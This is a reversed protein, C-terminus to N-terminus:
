LTQGVQVGVVRPTYLCGQQDITVPASPPPSSPFTGQVEVFANALGGDAARVVTEQVPRASRARAAAACAPDAGMRIVANGPAPGTLRVRGEITGTAPPPAALLHGGSGILWAAAALATAAAARIPPLM